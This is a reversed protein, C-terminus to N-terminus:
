MVLWTDLVIYSSCINGADTKALVSVMSNNCTYEKCSWYLTYITTAASITSFLDTWNYPGSNTKVIWLFIATLSWFHNGSMEIIAEECSWAEKQGLYFVHGVLYYLRGWHSTSFLHLFHVDFLACLINVVVVLIKPSSNKYPVSVIFLLLVFYQDLCSLLLWFHVNLKKKHNKYTYFIRLWALRKIKHCAWKWQWVNIKYLSILYCRSQTVRVVSILEKDYSLRTFAYQIPLLICDYTHSWHVLLITINPFRPLSQRKRHQIHWKKHTRSNLTTLYKIENHHNNLIITTKYSFPWIFLYM